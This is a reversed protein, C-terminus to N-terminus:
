YNITSCMIQYIGTQYKKKKEPHMCYGINGKKQFRLQYDAMLLIANLISAHFIAYGNKDIIMGQKNTVPDIVPLLGYEDRCRIDVDYYM